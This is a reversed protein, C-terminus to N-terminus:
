KLGGKIILTSVKDEIINTYNCIPCYIERTEISHWNDQLKAISKNINIDDNEYQLLSNCHKCVIINDEIIRVM